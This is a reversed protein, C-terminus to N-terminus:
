FALVEATAAFGPLPPVSADHHDIHSIAKGRRTYVRIRSEFPQGFVCVLRGFDALQELLADPREEIRGDLVIVDFPAESRWGREHPGTVVAVNVCGLAELNAGAQEALAADRELAIVSQALQSLVAASYGTATGVDLVCDEPAIEALQLMRAFALPEMLHRRAGEADTGIFLDEDIYAFTRKEEPVFLERPVEGMAAVVRLDIVGGPRIQSDIMSRRAREFDTM